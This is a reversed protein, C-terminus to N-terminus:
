PGTTALPHDSRSPPEIYRPRLRYLTTSAFHWACLVEVVDTFSGFVGIETVEDWHVQDVRLGYAEQSIVFSPESKEDGDDPVLVLTTEDACISELAVAWDPAIKATARIGLPPVPAVFTTVLSDHEFRCKIPMVRELRHSAVDSEVYNNDCQGGQFDLMM